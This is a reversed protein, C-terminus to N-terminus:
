FLKTALVEEGAIGAEKETPSPRKPPDQTSPKSDEKEKTLIHKKNKVIDM